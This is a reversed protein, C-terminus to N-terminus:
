AGVIADYLPLLSELVNAIEKAIDPGAGIAEKRETRRRLFVDCRKGPALNQFYDTMGEWDMPRSMAQDATEHQWIFGEAEPTIQGVQGYSTEMAYVDLHLGHAEMASRLDRQVDPQSLANVFSAWHGKPDVEAPPRSVRLGYFVGEEDTRVFIVAIIDRDDREFYKKRAVHVGNERPIIWYGFDGKTRQTLEYALVRGLEKRSSWAIRRGEAEFDGDEFGNFKPRSRARQKRRRAELRAERAQERREERRAMQKEFQINEWIRAQIEVSTDLTGGGAYRIKMEDDDISLVVYEGARNRYTKGVEFPHTMREGKGTVRAPDVSTLRWGPARAFSRQM